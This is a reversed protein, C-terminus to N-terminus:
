KNSGCTGSSNGMDLIIRCFTFQHGTSHSGLPPAHGIAFHWIMHSAILKLQTEAKNNHKLSLGFRVVSGHPRGGQEGGKCAACNGKKKLKLIIKAHLM